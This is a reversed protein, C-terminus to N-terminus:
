TFSAVWSVEGLLVTNANTNIVFGSAAKSQYDYTLARPDTGTLQVSYADSSFPTDFVVTAKKPSGSFGSPPLFGSKVNTAPGSGGSRPRIVTAQDM